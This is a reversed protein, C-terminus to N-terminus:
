CSKKTAKLPARNQPSIFDNNTKGNQMTVRNSQAGINQTDSQKSFTTVKNPETALTPTGRAFDFLQQSYWTPPNALPQRGSPIFMSITAFFANALYAISRPHNSGYRTVIIM